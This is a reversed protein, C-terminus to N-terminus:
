QAGTGQRCTLGCHNAIETNGGKEILYEALSEFGYQFVFHLATDGSLNKRNINAGYRLCLKCIRKHGNQAAVMLLSNGMRDTTQVDVEGAVVMAELDKYRNHRVLTFVPHDDVSRLALQRALEKRRAEALEQQRVREAEAEAAAAAAKSRALWGRVIQQVKTAAWVTDWYYRWENAAKRSAHGRYAAQMKTAASETWYYYDWAAQEMIPKDVAWRQRQLRGRVRAQITATAANRLRQERQLQNTVGQLKRLRGYQQQVLFMRWWCQIALAARLQQQVQILADSRFRMFSARRKAMRQRALAQLRVTAVLRRLVFWRRAAAQVQVAAADRRRRELERRAVMGRWCCQLITAAQMQQRVKALAGDRFRLFSLRRKAVQQRALGQLALIASAERQADDIKAQRFKLYSLRRKAKQGRGLAQICVIAKARADAEMIRKLVLWKRTTAQLKMSM